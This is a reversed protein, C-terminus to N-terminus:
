RTGLQQDIFGFLEDDSADLLRAAVAVGDQPERQESGDRAGDLKAVVAQLRASAGRREAPDELSLLTRELRALETDVRGGDPSEEGTLESLLLAAVAGPTPYDFVLTAPLDLGTLDSLRNRLEVALLSDFGLEKFPRAGDITESSAHGLVRAVEVRVWELALRERKEPSAELPGRQLEQGAASAGARAGAHLAAQVEPLDEILPRGRASAFLPAYTDWRIDAVVTYAEDRLLAGNLAEVALGPAMPHLGHRRLADGLQREAVGAMGDGAWAGWAISTATLGRARREAALADLYANAAAYAGQEASGLTGAISSFLVFARLDLHQTLVDLNFAGRAKASLARQLDAVGLSDLGGLDGVGAAHVVAGLPHSEPLSEILNALRDRDAVDCAAVATEAGMERLQACLERVGPADEGRRSVLLLRQAGIGALWRAVHAGLGGTGGTIMVTGPPPTWVGAPGEEEARKAASGSIPRVSRARVLRRAFVGAGRVAVQDESGAGDLVGALLTLVREDLTAPLDISGGLRQPRELGLVRGLGWVQAQTPSCLRESPAVSVASRTLLWVPAPLTLDDLAQALAVTGALGAPVSPHTSLPEEQLALLSVVSRVEREDGLEDLAERLARAIEERGAAGDVHVAVLRECRAGLSAALTAFWEQESGAATPLIMLWTGSLASAPALALPKWDVGYCWRSVTSRERSQRHWSSLSPLVAGLSSRPHEGELGLVQALDELEEGEVAEWFRTEAGLVPQDAIAGAPSHSSTDGSAGGLWYRRRQFAYTPMDPLPSGEGGFVAGWDVPGGRTWVEALASLLSLAEPRGARLVAVAFSASATGDPAASLCDRAMASLVGDPGIELFSGIGQSGLWGIGEAFRVTERVQRIWYESSSLEEVAPRGTLNSVIPIRPPAYSIGRAVEGFQELMQEMLPSHFAHSVRLRKLKRGRREWEAAVELLAEEEGSLVVSSPGNVAAVSVRDELGALSEAAEQPSAQVAIMAGDRPLASMLRGRAAVLRCADELAFVGAVHGAALEGISHGILYAPTVGLGELLRFLAVELAFLGAQTFMTDDLQEALPSGETAFLVDLLSGGLEADLRACVEELASAFRPFAMYLESGMGVRQAGQGTFLFALRGAAAAAVAGELVNPRGEGAALAALGALLESPENGLVVARNEHTARTALSSGVDGMSISERASVFSHLRAAQARLSERGSASLVFPVVGVDQAGGASGGDSAGAEGQEPSSAEELILHANTGSVGFSSVGARRPRGNRLWPRAETLLSVEGASWDVQTSPRDVHLTKPLLGHRMAMVMKIVGGV